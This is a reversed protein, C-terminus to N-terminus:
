LLLLGFQSAMKESAESSEGSGDSENSGDSRVTGFLRTGSCVASKVPLKPDWLTVYTGFCSSYRRRGWQKCTYLPWTGITGLGLQGPLMREPLTCRKQM